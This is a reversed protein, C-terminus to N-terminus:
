MVFHFIPISLKCVRITYIVFAVEFVVSEM